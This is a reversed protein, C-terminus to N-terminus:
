PHPLRPRSLCCPSCYGPNPILTPWGVSVPTRISSNSPPRKLFAPQYSGMLVLCTSFLFPFSLRPRPSTRGTLSPPFSIADNSFGRDEGVMASALFLLPLLPSLCVRRLHSVRNGCSLFLIGSSTLTRIRSNAQCSPFIQTLGGRPSLGLIGRRNIENFGRGLIDARFSFTARWKPFGRFQMRKRDRSSSSAITCMSM